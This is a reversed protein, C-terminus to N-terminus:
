PASIGLQLPIEIVFTTGVDLQTECYLRGQHVETVIQHSISLGLGTGKGMPKTTFFADFLQDRVEHPIGPGNDSVRIAIRDEPMVTTTITIQFARAQNTDFDFQAAYDDIADIGNAVLNMVVQNWQGSYCMV